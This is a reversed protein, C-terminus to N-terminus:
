DIRYTSDRVAGGIKLENRMPEDAPHHHNWYDSQMTSSLTATTTENNGYVEKWSLIRYPFEKQFLIELSRELDPYEIRYVYNIQSSTLTTMAEYVKNEHHSLRIYFASPVMNVKGVPLTNPAVRIKTWIEDELSTSVLSYETDGEDEFYSMQRYEYRNGKYNAQMFSQGCWDQSSAVLKLSHPYDQYNIPTFVTSMMSYKYIGTIFEKLTNLKMVKIADSVHRAPDDLKVQKSRSFDETVFVFIVEGDHIEGYRSQSLNYTSIEGQGQYWYDSFVKTDVPPIASPNQKCSFHLIFLFFFLLLKIPTPLMM